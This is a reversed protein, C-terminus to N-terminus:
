PVAAIRPGKGPAPYGNLETPLALGMGRGARLDAAEEQSLGAAERAHFRAYPAGPQRADNHGAHQALAPTLSM